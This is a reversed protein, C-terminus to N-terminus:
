KIVSMVFCRLEDEIMECIWIVVGGPEEFGIVFCFVYDETAGTAEAAGYMGNKEGIRILCGHIFRLM